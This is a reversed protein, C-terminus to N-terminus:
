RWCSFFLVTPKPWRGRGNCVAVAVGSRVSKDTPFHGNRIAAIFKFGNQKQNSRFGGDGPGLLPLFFDGSPGLFGELYLLKELRLRRAHIYFIQLIGWHGGKFPPPQNKKQLPTYLFGNQNQASGRFIVSRQQPYSGVESLCPGFPANGRTERV